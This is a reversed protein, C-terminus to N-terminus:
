SRAQAQRPKRPTTRQQEPDQESPTGDVSTSQGTLSPRIVLRRATSHIAVRTAAANASEFPPLPQNTHSSNSSPRSPARSHTTYFLPPLPLPVLRTSGSFLTEKAQASLPHLWDAFSSWYILPALAIRLAWNSQLRAGADNLTPM